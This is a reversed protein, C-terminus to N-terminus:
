GPTEDKSRCERCLGFIAFHSFVAEFGLDDRIAQGVPTLYSHDLDIVRGCGQCLLHHHPRDTMVEFEACGRGLDTQSLVNLDRLRELTRYVTSLALEPHQPRVREFVREASAHGDLECLAKLIAVRPETMRCLGRVRRLLAPYDSM